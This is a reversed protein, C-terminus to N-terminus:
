DVSRTLRRAINGGVLNDIVPASLGMTELTPVIRTMLGVLGPGDGIHSWLGADAMDTGIAVHRGLGETVMRELLPWLNEQPHYKPRYFTDYELLVGEEALDRHLAFDPRKDIHFLVIRDPGIGLTKLRDVIEEAARGKETHAAIAAGTALSASAAAEVLTTPVDAPDNGFAMKIFGARVPTDMETTEVLGHELERIFAARAEEFTSDWLWYDAPYYTQLHFGTTAVIHVGSAQSLSLLVRGDRGCGGPQCDIFTRGGADRYDRLEAEIESKQNLVPADPSGGTVPAIWAHNHADTIGAETPAIAGRVTILEDM